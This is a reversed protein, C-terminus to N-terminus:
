NRRTVVFDALEKLAQKAECEEFAEINFVALDVCERARALTLEAGEYRGVLELVRELQPSDPEEESRDSALALEKIASSIEEGEGVSCRKLTLLLPLTM